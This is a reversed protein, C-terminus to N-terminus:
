SYVQKMIDTYYDVLLQTFRTRIPEETGELGPHPNVEWVIIEGSPLYAYDIGCFDLDLAQVVRTFFIHEESSVPSEIYAQDEQQMMDNQLTNDWHVYWDPSIAIFAKLVQKPTAYVRYKRYLGDPSMTDIWQLAVPKKLLRGPKFMDLKCNSMAEQYSAFPGKTNGGKSDHGEDFRIFIPFDNPPIRQIDETFELPYTKAVRFGAQRLLKLQSSKSSLSLPDPRNILHIHNEKCFQELRKAYAYQKPYLAALPDHYFFAIVKYQKFIAEPFKRKVDRIVHVQDKFPHQLQHLFQEFQIYYQWPAESLFLLLITNSNNM